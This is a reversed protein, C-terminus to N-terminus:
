LKNGVIKIISGFDLNEFGQENLQEYLQTATKGMVTEIGSDKAANQSIILDKLMMKSAFGGQYDKNSAATDTMNPYPCNTNMAWCAGSANSSIEFFVKPDLGLNEALKFGEAVAIMSIGLIMNNCIKASQGNGSQGAHIIKKGMNELVPKATNFSEATGGVMFTLTGAIAGIVGGSIPADIMAFGLSKAQTAIERTVSVDITSCDILLTSLDSSQFIGGDATYCDISSQTTPLVTIIFEVDKCAEALNKAPMAGQAALENVFDSVVDFVKLQHGAKLLNLAMPKGMNGLGIFGIKAM